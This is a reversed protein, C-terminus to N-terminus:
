NTVFQVWLNCYSVIFNVLHNRIMHVISNNIRHLLYVLIYFCLAMRVYVVIYNRMRFIVRSGEVYYNTPITITWFIAAFLTDTSVDFVCYAM